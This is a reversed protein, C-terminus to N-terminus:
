KRRGTYILGLDCVHDSLGKAKLLLALFKHLMILIPIAICQAFMFKGGTETILLMILLRNLDISLSGIIERPSPDLVWNPCPLWNENATFIYQAHKKREVRGKNSSHIFTLPFGQGLNGVEGLM